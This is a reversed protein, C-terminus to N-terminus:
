ESFSVEFLIQQLRFISWRFWHNKFSRGEAECERIHTMIVSILRSMTMQITAKVDVNLTELQEEMKEVSEESPIEDPNDTIISESSALFKKLRDKELVLNDEQEQVLAIKRKILNHIIEWLFFKNLEDKMQPSFVWDIVAPSEVIGYKIIKQVVIVVLQQHNMWVEYLTHLLAVQTEDNPLLQGLLNASKGLATFLHTFSQSSVNLLINVVLNIKAAEGDFGEIPPLNDLEPISSFNKSRFALKLDHVIDKLRSSIGEEPFKDIPEPAPPILDKFAEPVFEVVRAHYSFRICRVFTERIFCIKPHLPELAVDDAWDNWTWM